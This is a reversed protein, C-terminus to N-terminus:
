QDINRGEKTSEGRKEESELRLYMRYAVLLFEQLNAAAELLDDESADEPMRSKALNWFPPKKEHKEM